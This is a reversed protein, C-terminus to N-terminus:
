KKGAAYFTVMDHTGSGDDPLLGACTTRVSFGAEDLIRMLNEQRYYHTWFRYVALPEPDSWVVHQQLIVDAEEYHFTEALALYPRDRWFGRKASEWTKTGINMKEPAKENLTDFIILGGPKLARSINELLRTRDVPVLVDFDCFIMIALDFRGEYPLDLYNMQEYEIALGKEAASKKAYDISRASLDVGTIAHGHEALLECYLGPGCGLDLISKKGVPVQSEIWRVTKEITARKRSAADCDPNLHLELLHRSIHEDEWMSATGKEYLEPKQVKEILQSVQM